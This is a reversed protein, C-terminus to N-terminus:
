NLIEIGKERWEMRYGNGLSFCLHYWVMIVRRGEGAEVRYECLSSSPNRVFWICILGETKDTSIQKFINSWIWSYFSQWSKWFDAGLFAQVLPLCWLHRVQEMHYQRWLVSGFRLQCCTAIEMDPAQSALKRKDSQSFFTHFGYWFFSFAFRLTPLSCIQTQPFTFNPRGTVESVALQAVNLLRKRSHFPDCKSLSFSATLIGLIIQSNDPCPLVYM